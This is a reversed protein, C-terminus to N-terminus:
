EYRELYEEVDIAAKCGAAAATVAQKYTLDHVDGAAFVGEASTKTEDHLSIYGKEDLGIQGQFIQTNPTHGIAVFVGEAKLEQTQNNTVDKIKIGTVKEEGLVEEVGSNWIFKIKPNKFARDQLTQFARLSDRRHIVTVTSAFKTLFLAEKIATDGGGIVLVDKDRFFAGDCVACSSVGKGILKQESELGLWKASAGTAIIVAKSFYKEGGEVEIEFPKKSFDVKKANDQVVETGFKEAQEKMKFVLEPGQVGEPFGPFDEVDTTLMLQGGMQAGSIVLTKIKARSAYIAATWGAPGSGLIILDYNM